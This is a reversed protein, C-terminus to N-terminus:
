FNSLQTTGIGKDELMVPISDEVTYIVKNDVTILAEALAKEVLAGDIYQVEGAKIGANLKDLRTRDLPQLPTKSVPCCLIDLLKRDVPMRYKGFLPNGKNYKFKRQVPVLIFSGTAHACARKAVVQTQYLVREAM